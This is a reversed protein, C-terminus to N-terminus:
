SGTHLQQCQDSLIAKDRRVSALEREDEEIEQRLRDKRALNDASSALQRRLKVLEANQSDHQSKLVGAEQRATSIAQHLAERVAQLEQQLAAHTSTLHQFRERFSDRAAHAEV